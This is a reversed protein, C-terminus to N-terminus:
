TAHCVKHCTRAPNETTMEADPTQSFLDDVSDPIVRTETDTLAETDGVDMPKTDLVIDAFVPAPKQSTQQELLTSTGEDFIPEVDRGDGNGLDKGGILKAEERLKKAKEERANIEKEMKQTTMIELKGESVSTALNSSRSVTSPAVAPSDLLPRSQLM